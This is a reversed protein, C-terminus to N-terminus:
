SCPVGVKSRRDLSAVNNLDRKGLSAKSAGKEDRERIGWLCIRHSRAGRHIPSGGDTDNNLRGLGQHLPCVLVRGEMVFCCCSLDFYLPSGQGQGQGDCPMTLGTIILLFIAAKHSVRPTSVESWPLWCIDAGSLKRFEEEKGEAMVECVRESQSEWKRESKRVERSEL